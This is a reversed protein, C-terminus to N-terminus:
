IRFRESMVGLDKAYEAMQHAAASIEEVLAANQQVSQDMETVAENVQGIGSSQEVAAESIDNVIGAVRQASTVIEEMTKGAKGALNSGHGVRDVSQHILASIEKAAASSRQALARVEAAVVAFGRGQEGARAAEVAANLALINTQFAIGDITTIIEAMQRSSEEISGIVKVVDQVVIGGAAALQASEAALQKAERASNATQRVTATLEEMAAATEEVNSSQQETRRSLDANGQAIEDASTRISSIAEQLKTILERLQDATGNADSALEQFVGVLKRETRVTLDGRALAELVHQVDAIALQTTELLNNTTQALTGFRGSHRELAIRTSLEGNSAHHVANRLAHLFNTDASVDHWELATGIRTGDLVIPNATLAFHFDGLDIRASHPERLDEIMQRQAAPDKHFIEFHNGLIKHPDFWPFRAKLVEQSRELLRQVAPNVYVVIGEPDAIMMGNSACDLASRIRANQESVREREIREKLDAQMRSLARLLQGFEDDSQGDLANDLKLRAINEAATVASGITRSISRALAILTWALLGLLGLLSVSLLALDRRSESLHGESAGKLADLAADGFEHQADKLATLQGFYDASDIAPSDADVVSERVMARVDDRQDEVKAEAPELTEEFAPNAAFVKGLERDNVAMAHAEDDLLLTLEGRLTGDVTDNALRVAGRDRLQVMAEQVQLGTVTVVNQLHFVDVYPTYTYASDDKIDDAVMTIADIAEGFRRFSTEETLEGGELATKLAGWAEPAQQFDRRSHEWGDAQELLVAIEALATDVEAMAEQLPAEQDADGGLVLAHRGRAEQAKHIAHLIHRLPEIGALERQSVSVANLQARLALLTPILAALIAILGVVLFKRSIPLNRLLSGLM